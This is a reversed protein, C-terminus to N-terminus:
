ERIFEAVVFPAVDPDAYYLKSATVILTARAVGKYAQYVDHAYVVELNRWWKFLDTYPVVNGPMCGVFLSDAGAATVIVFREPNRLDNASYQKKPKM